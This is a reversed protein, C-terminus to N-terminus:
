LDDLLSDIFADDDERVRTEASKKEKNLMRTVSAKSAGLESALERIMREEEPQIKDDTAALQILSKIIANKSGVPEPLERELLGLMLKLYGNYSALSEALDRTEENIQAQRGTGHGLGTEGSPLPGQARWRPQQDRHAGRHRRVDGVAQLSLCVCQPFEPDVELAPM